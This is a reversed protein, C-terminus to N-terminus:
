RGGNRWFYFLHLLIGAEYNPRGIHLLREMYHMAVQEMLLECQFTNPEFKRPSWVLEVTDTHITFTFKSKIHFNLPWVIQVNCVHPVLPQAAQRKEIKFAVIRFNVCRRWRGNKRQKPITRALEIPNYLITYITAHLQVPPSRVALSFSTGVRWLVFYYFVCVSHFRQVQVFLYFPM